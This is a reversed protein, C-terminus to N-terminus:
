RRLDRNRDPQCPLAASAFRCTDLGLLNALAYIDAKNLGAEVYPHVVKYQRAAELGPRYDNLDDLNTGSSITLGTVTAIRQYLRSKCYFCRNVPNSRYAPDTMEGAEILELVWGHRIAHNQVRRTALQPVAPSLAHVATMATQAHCHTVYALVMSDLGGSVAIALAAHQDLCKVLRNLKESVTM